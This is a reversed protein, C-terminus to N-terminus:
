MKRGRSASPNSIEQKLKHKFKAANRQQILNDLDCYLDSAGQEEFIRQLAVDPQSKQFILDIMTQDGSAVAYRLAESKNSKPLSKPLLLRVMDIHGFDIAELLADTNEKRSSFQLLYEVVPFHNYRAALQLAYSGGVAVHAYENIAQITRLDGEKAATNLKDNWNSNYDM